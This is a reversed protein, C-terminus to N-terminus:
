TFHQSLQTRAQSQAQVGRWPMLSEEAPVGAWSDRVLWASFGLAGAAPLVLSRPPSERVAQHLVHGLLNQDLAPVALAHSYGYVTVFATLFALAAAGIKKRERIQDM